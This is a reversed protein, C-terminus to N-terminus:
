PARPCRSGDKVGVEPTFLNTRDELKRRIALDQRPPRERFLEKNSLGSVLAEMEDPTVGTAYAAGVLSGMSTGTICDVPVRLSELVKLVGIHAAGRAGGGSLVLCIRPRGLPAAPSQAAVLIPPLLM